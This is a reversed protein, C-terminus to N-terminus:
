PLCTGTDRAVLEGNRFREVLRITDAVGGRDNIIQLHHTATIIEAGTHDNTAGGFWIAGRMSYAQGLGDVLRVQQPTETVTFSSNGSPTTSEHFVERITGSVFTYTARPCPFVGGALSFEGHTTVAEAASAAAVVASLAIALSAGLRAIRRSRRTEQTRM